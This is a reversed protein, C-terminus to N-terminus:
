TPVPHHALTWTKVGRALAEERSMKRCYGKALYDQIISEYKKYLQVNERLRKRLYRFRKMALGTSDPLQAKPDKRLMPVEYRGNVFKTGTELHRLAHIDEQSMAVDSPPHILEHELVWFKELQQHLVDDCASTCLKNVWVTRLDEDDAWYKELSSHIERNTSSNLLTIQHNFNPSSNTKGFLTWGFITNVALLKGQSDRRVDRPISAEPIDAGILIGIRDASVDSLKIGDLRTYMDSDDGNEPPRPQSPM